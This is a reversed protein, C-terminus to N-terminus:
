TGARLVMKRLRASLRASALPAYDAAKQFYRQQAARLEDPGLKAIADLGGLSKSIDNVLPHEELVEVDPHGMLM